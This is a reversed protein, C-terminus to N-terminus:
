AENVSDQNAKEAAEAEAAVEDDDPAEEDDDPQEEPTVFLEERIKNELTEALEPNEIMLKRAGEAGQVRQGDYFEYWSGSKSLLNWDPNDIALDMLSSLNDIGEGFRIAVFAERFPPAVKNKVVKVKTKNAVIIENGDADKGKDSGIRRVDIRQSSYFKLARGGPQTEPSGFTVGIKERIQNIFLLTTGSNNASGALKRMAQSMLRAVVGVSSQGMDGELESTPVLAAVSDLVVLDVSSSDVLTNMIELAQEANDPQSVILSDIHVGLNSAYTADMAHETDIFAAIGGSNQVSAILHYALTTKGSSEPGFVEIIRGKPVGGVGLAVDIPIAGTPIVEIKRPKTMDIISEDGHQKRIRALAAELAKKKKPDIEMSKNSDTEM